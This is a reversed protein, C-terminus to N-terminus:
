SILKEFLHNNKLIEFCTSSKAKNKFKNNSLIALSLIELSQELEGQMALSCSKDYLVDANDPYDALIQNCCLISDNFNQMSFLIREKHYLVINYKPFNQLIKNCLDLSESFHRMKRLASIKNVQISLDDPFFTLAVNYCEIAKEYEKLKSLAYGKNNLATLNLSNESLIMDYYKIADKFKNDLFLNNAIKILSIIPM